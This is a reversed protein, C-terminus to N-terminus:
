KSIIDLDRVKNYGEMELWDKKVFDYTRPMVRPFNIRSMTDIGLILISPWREGDPPKIKTKLDSKKKNVMSFVQNQQVKKENDDLMALNCNIIMFEVDIPVM